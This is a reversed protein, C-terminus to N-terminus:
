ARQWQESQWFIEPAGNLRLAIMGLELKLTMEPLGESYVFVASEPM